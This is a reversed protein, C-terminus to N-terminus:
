KVKVDAMILTSTELTYVPKPNMSGNATISVMSLYWIRYRVLRLNMIWSVGFREAVDGLVDVVVSDEIGVVIM